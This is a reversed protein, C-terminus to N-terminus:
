QEVLWNDFLDPLVILVVLSVTSLLAIVNEYDEGCFLDTIAFVALELVYVTLLRRLFVPFPRQALTHCVLACSLVAVVARVTLSSWSIVHCVGITESCAGVVVVYVIYLGHSIAAVARANEIGCFMFVSVTGAFHHATIGGSRMFANFSRCVVPEVVELWRTFEDTAEDRDFVPM